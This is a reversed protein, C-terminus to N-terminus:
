AARRADADLAAVDVGDVLVRGRAPHYLGAILSPLPSKRSCSPGVIATTSGPQLTFSVGDLVTAGAGDYGFVVDEFEIRPADDHGRRAETGAAMVPAGLVSRIRDLTARTSELAPGLE